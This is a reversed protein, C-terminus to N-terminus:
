DGVLTPQSSLRSWLRANEAPDINWFAPVVSMLVAGGAAQVEVIRMSAIGNRNSSYTVLSERVNAAISKWQGNLSFIWSELDHSDAGFYSSDRASLVVDRDAHAM